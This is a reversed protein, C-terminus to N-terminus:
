NTKVILYTQLGKPTRVRVEEGPLKGLIAAGVPSASSIKANLPSAEHPAVIQCTTQRGTDTEKIVVTSGLQIRAGAVADGEEIVVASRLTAEIENIKGQILGQAERAAELPANERVDKDAAARHIDEALAKREGRYQDLRSVLESHGARTLQVVAHELTSQKKRGSSARGKRLRLHQALSVEVLGQKKLFGLFKKVIELRGVADPATGRASVLDSYEGIEPAALTAVKRDAGVWRLFRSLEAQVTKRDEPAVDRLYLVLTENLAPPEAHGDTVVQVTSVAM